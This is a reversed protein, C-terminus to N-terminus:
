IGDYEANLQTKPHQSIQTNYLEATNCKAISMTKPHQSIQTNYLEATNCKAISM